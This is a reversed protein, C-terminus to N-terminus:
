GNVIQKKPTSQQDNIIEKITYSQTERANTFIILEGILGIAFLQIGLVILLLGFLLVPRDALPIGEFMRQYALFGCFLGGITFASLGSLGFFRLPKKTFKVLFFISLLDILRRSYVGLPYGKRYRDNKSQPLDVERVKFGQRNALIPLFRYQDGYLTIKELVKRKFIRINCGLDNYRVKLMWRIIRHFVVTQFRNLINDSRPSRNTIIMDANGAAQFLTKLSEQKVQQYPPLTVIMEGTANEFGAMLAASEGYQKAFQVIKLAPESSHLSKLKQLLSSNKGDLVYILEYSQGTAELAGKYANHLSEVDVNRNQKNISIIVSYLPKLIM